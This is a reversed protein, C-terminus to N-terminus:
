EKSKIRKVCCEFRIVGRSLFCYTSYHSGPTEGTARFRERALGRPTLRRSSSSLRWRPWCLPRWPRSEARWGSTAACASSRSSGARQWGTLSRGIGSTPRVAAMSRLCTGRRPMPGPPVTQLLRRRLERCWTQVVIPWRRGGGLSM